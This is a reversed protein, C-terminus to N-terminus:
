EDIITYDNVLYFPPVSKFDDGSGMVGDSAQLTNHLWGSTYSNSLVGGVLATSFLDDYREIRVQHNRPIALTNEIDFNYLLSVQSTLTVATLTGLTGDFQPFTFNFPV